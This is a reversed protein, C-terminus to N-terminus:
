ASEVKLHLALKVLEQQDQGRHMFTVLADRAHQRYRQQRTRYLDVM